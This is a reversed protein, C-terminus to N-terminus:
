VQLRFHVFGKVSSGTRIVTGAGEHGLIMQKGWKLSDYDTHCIGAVKMKVLVEDFAPEAVEIEEISYNGNGDTIAAKCKLNNLTPM